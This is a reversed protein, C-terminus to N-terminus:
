KGLLVRAPSAELDTLRLPLAVMQYDGPEIDSLNVEEIATQDPGGGLFIRHVPIGQAPDFPGISYGDVGLLVVGKNVLAQAAGVTLAIYDEYFDPKVLRRSNFTRLFLRRVGNLDLHNIFDEPIHARGDYAVVRAPGILVETSLEDVAKGESFYHRPADIHTGFHSCMSVSTVNMVEGKVMSMMEDVAYRPHGPWHVTEPRM